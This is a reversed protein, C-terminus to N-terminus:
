LNLRKKMENHSIWETNNEKVKVASQYDLNDEEIQKLRQYENYDVIVAVPKDNEKIIQTNIM